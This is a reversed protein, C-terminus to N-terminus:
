RTVERIYKRIIDVKSPIPERFGVIKPQQEYRELQKLYYSLVRSEDLTKYRKRKLRSIDLKLYYMDSKCNFDTTTVHDYERDM